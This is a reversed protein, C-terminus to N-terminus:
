FGFYVIEEELQVGFYQRVQQKIFSILMVVDDATANGTNVIFNSHELSIKTGGIKKGNIDLKAILWGSGIKGDKGLGKEKIESYLNENDKLDDIMLNKFVCGASPLKPQSKLRKDLTDAIKTKISDPGGKDLKLVSQWIVMSQSSKFLSNRYGFKCLSRSLIDFKRKNIDYYEVTELSDKIEGGYAGANGRVAGGVTGPIGIAWELGTLDNAQALSVARALKVGSEAEIREGRVIAKDNVLRIVLADIFKDNVLVNSGGALLLVKIQKAKAWNYAEVLEDKASIELYYKAMGGIKFTTLPKLNYDNKIKAEITM